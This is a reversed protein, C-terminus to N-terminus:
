PDMFTGVLSIAVLICNPDMGKMVHDPRLWLLICLPAITHFFMALFWYLNSRHSLMYMLSIELM